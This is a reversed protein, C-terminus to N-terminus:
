ELGYKSRLDGVLQEYMGNLMIRQIIFGDLRSLIYSAADVAAIEGVDHSIEEYVRLLSEIPPFDHKKM